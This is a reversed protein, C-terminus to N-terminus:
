YGKKNIIEQIVVGYIYNSYPKTIYDISGAERLINDNLEYISCQNKVTTIIFDKNNANVENDIVLITNKEFDPEFKTSDILIAFSKDGIVERAM